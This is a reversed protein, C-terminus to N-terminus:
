SPDESDSDDAQGNTHISDEPLANAPEDRSSPSHSRGSFSSVSSKTKPVSPRREGKAKTRTRRRTQQKTEHLAARLEAVIQQHAPTDSLQALEIPTAVTALVGAGNPPSGPTTPRSSQLKVLAGAGLLRHVIEVHGHLAALHLATFGESDTVEVSAGADLCMGLISEFGKEAAITLPTEGDKRKTDPDAKAKLLQATAEDHYMEAAIHLATEGNEATVHVSAGTQLLLRLMEDDDDQEYRCVHMLATNGRVDVANVQAGLAILTRVVRLHGYRCAAMLATENNLACCTDVRAGAGLLMRASKENGNACANILACDGNDNQVHVQWM